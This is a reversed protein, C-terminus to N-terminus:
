QGVVLSRMKSARPHAVRKGDDARMMVDSLYGATLKNYFKSLDIMTGTRKTLQVVYTGGMVEIYRVTVAMGRRSSTPLILDLRGRELDCSEVWGGLSMTGQKIRLLVDDIEGQTSFQVHGSTTEEGKEFIANFSINRNILEFANMESPGRGGAKVERIIDLSLVNVLEAYWKYFETTNGSVKQVDVISSGGTLYIMTVTVHILGKLSKTYLRLTNETRKVARGSALAIVAQEIEDFVRSADASTTFQTHRRILDDKEEFIASIDFFDNILQFANFKKAVAEIERDSSSVSADSRHSAFTKLDQLSSTHIMVSNETLLTEDVVGMSPFRGIAIGSTRDVSGQMWPRDLLEKTTPRQLPDVQLMSRLMDQADDSLWMPMTYEGASVKEFLQVLNEEDFPLCGALIVYLVVGLSWIDAAYGNYPVKNIVEPAAYNPTGCVTTLAHIDQGEDQMAGLGFDSLKAIGDPTMLVNEPKIDRHCVGNDHCHAVATLIQGFLDRGEDEKLPGQVAIKDFLDGGTVLEMVLFIKERSSMIEHMNAIFPHKIRKLIAIETKVQDVMGRQVLYDKNLVKLAYATGTESHQAYKM